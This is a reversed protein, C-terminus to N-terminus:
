AKERTMVYTTMATLLPKSQTVISWGEGILKAMKKSGRRTTPDLLFTKTEVKPKSM